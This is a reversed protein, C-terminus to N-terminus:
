AAAEDLYSELARRVYSRARHLLVRQNGDTLSLVECTEEATAGDVDRLMIVSRQLPPLDDIAATIVTHTEEGILRDEPWRAPPAAWNGAYRHSDGVFRDPDVSPGDGGVASFPVSRAERGGLSKARNVVIRFLWTKLSSRGEFGDIGHLVRVWADQAIDEAV